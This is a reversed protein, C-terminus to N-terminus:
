FLSIFLFKPVDSGGSQVEVTMNNVSYAANQATQEAEQLTQITIVVGAKIQAISTTIDQSAQTVTTKKNQM